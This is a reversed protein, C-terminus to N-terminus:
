NHFINMFFHETKNTRSMEPIVGEHIPHKLRYALILRNLTAQKNNLETPKNISFIFSMKSM